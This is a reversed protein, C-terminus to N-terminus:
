LLLMRYWATNFRSPKGYFGDIKSCECGINLSLRALNPRPWLYQVTTDVLLFMSKLSLKIPKKYYNRGCGRIVLLPKSPASVFIPM